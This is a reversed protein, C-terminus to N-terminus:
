LKYQLVANQTFPECNALEQLIMEKVKSSDFLNKYGYIFSLANLDHGNFNETFYNLWDFEEKDKESSPLEPFLSELGKIAVKKGIVDFSAEDKTSLLLTIAMAGALGCKQGHYKTYKSLAALCLALKGSRYQFNFELPYDKELETVQESYKSYFTESFAKLPEKTNLLVTGFVDEDDAEPYALVQKKEENKGKNITSTEKKAKKAHRKMLKSIRSFIDEEETLKSNDHLKSYIKFAGKLARVYVPKTYITKAWKLMDIYARPTGKRMCYSHFDLQDDEFQDYFKSIAQFRKLALGQNKKTEWEEIKIDRILAEVEPDEKAELEEAKTVLNQLKRSSTVYLRYYAEAQEIIFWAAEVLHLDKIGNVSDDNKTFLSAIDTAKEINNARLYYKVTKTNIFRDQLDLKRGAELTEAAEELLGLHKLVRGKFIYLEVLTPTHKIARDIFEQSKQFQKLHLFHQALYYCTWIYPLPEKTPDLTLSYDVVIQELLSPVVSARAQYLPKVNCFAAPVGRQLQPIIYDKLKQSLEKEDEIFTLPIFVPPESRPYFSQLKEYLAKRLPIHGQVGLAVELLKYYRFDDPNRKILTRYIKSAEKLEGLKMYISAKEELLGYKDYVNPEIDNLHKLVNQLKEKNNGAARYMIENKYMLCENHEYMEAEGLKGEVLKEFQSLTNVAQQHEGNIDQAIALATWNARYGLYAEWYKKRSVLAGKLDGIQSQLTALDRYIQQNTSGNNLSAQFWKVSEAYKKTTRMYIGLVHCCIPSATTGEIKNLANKVYSEADSKEGLSLLDLGKLALADVFASDKKLTGDLIKISKKYSKSEYLKLAELFQTQENSRGFVPMSKSKAGRKKSM